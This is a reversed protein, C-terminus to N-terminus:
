RICIYSSKAHEFREDDEEEKEYYNEAAVREDDYKGRTPEGAPPM